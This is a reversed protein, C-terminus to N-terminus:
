SKNLQEQPTAALELLKLRNIPTKSRTKFAEVPKKLNRQSNQFSKM